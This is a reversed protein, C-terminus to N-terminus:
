KHLNHLLEKLRARIDALQEETPQAFEYAANGAEKKLCDVCVAAIQPPSSYARWVERGCGVCHDLFSAAPAAEGKNKLLCILKM